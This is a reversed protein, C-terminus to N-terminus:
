ACGSQYQNVFDLYDFFDINGDNNVDSRADLMSYADIFDLYDFFDVNGDRNFDAAGVYEISGITNRNPVSGNHDTRVFFSQTGQALCNLNEPSSSASSLLVRHTDISTNNCNYYANSDVTGTNFITNCNSKNIVLNNSFVGNPSQNPRDYDILLTTTPQANSINITNFVFTPSSPTNPLGNFFSYDWQQRSLDLTINNNVVWGSQAWNALSYTNPAPYFNYTGAIRAANDLALATSSGNFTEGAIVCHVNEISNAVPLDSYASSAETGNIICGNTIINNFKLVGGTHGYFGNGRRFNTYDWESSPMTGAIVECHDFIVNQGGNYSFTNFISESASGNFTAWGAKCNVFTAVGGSNGPGYDNDTGLHVMVHSSGYYAESNIVLCQRNGTARIEIGHQQSPVSTQLGWGECVLNNVFCGDGRLIIGANTPTTYDLSGTSRTYLIGTNSDYWWSDDTNTVFSVSYGRILPNNGNKVWTVTQPISVSYVLGNRTGTTPVSRFTTFVPKAGSGYDEISINPYLGTDLGIQERWVDGRKFRLSVNGGSAVIIQQAKTMTRYPNVASGNGTTDNGSQSFHYPERVSDNAMCYAVRNSLETQYWNNWEASVPSPAVSMVLMSILSGFIM